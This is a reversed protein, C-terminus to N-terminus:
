CTEVVIRSALDGAQAGGMGDAVLYLGVVIQESQVYFVASQTFYADKNQNRRM